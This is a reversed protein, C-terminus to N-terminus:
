FDLGQERAADALAAIRGHYLYGGRDFVVKKIGRELAKKAILRGVMQAAAINKKGKVEGRIEPSLTSAAALTKGKTDDIVQAYIHNLSKYVSLRPREPTGFVKKRVRLHKRKRVEARSEKSM